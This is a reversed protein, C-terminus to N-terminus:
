RISIRSIYLFSLLSICFTIYQVNTAHALNNKGKLCGYKSDSVFGPPCFKCIAKHEEVYCPTDPACNNVQCPDVCSFDKCALHAPCGSDRLCISLTPHCDRMCICIPKHDLVDCTKNSPCPLQSNPSRLSTCPNLCIGGICALNSACDSDRTCEKNVPACTLEGFENVVFGSKCVCVPRHHRVECRKNGQCKFRDDKCPDQCTSTPRNCALNSPCDNDKICSIPILPRPQTTECGPDVRCSLHPMGVYCQPCTCRPKHLITKCLANDGCAGRM